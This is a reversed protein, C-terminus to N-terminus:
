KLKLIMSQPLFDEGAIMIPLQQWDASGEKRVQTLGRVADGPLQSATTVSKIESHKLLEKKLLNYNAMVKEPQETMVLMNKESGGVQIDKVLNM